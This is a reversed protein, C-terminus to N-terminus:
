SPDTKQQEPKKGCSQSAWQVYNQMCPVKYDSQKQPVLHSDRIKAWSHSCGLILLEVAPAGSRIMKAGM